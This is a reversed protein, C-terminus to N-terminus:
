KKLELKAQKPPAGIKKEQANEIILGQEKLKTLEDPKIKTTFGYLMSVINACGDDEISDVKITPITMEYSSNLNQKRQQEKNNLQARYQDIYTQKLEKDTLGQKDIQKGETKTHRSLRIQCNMKQKTRTCFIGFADQEELLIEVKTDDNVSKIKCGHQMFWSCIDKIKQEMDPDSQYDKKNIYLQKPRVVAINRQEPNGLVELLEIKLKITQEKQQEAGIQAPKQIKSRKQVINEKYEVGYETDTGMNSTDYIQEFVEGSVVQMKLMDPCGFSDETIIFDGHGHTMGHKNVYELQNDKQLIPVNQIELPIRIAWLTKNNGIPMMKQWDFTGDSRLRNQLTENQVEETDQFKYGEQLEKGTVVWKEGPLRSIVFQKFKDTYYTQNLIKNYVKYGVAPRSVYVNYKLERTRFWNNINNIHQVLNM